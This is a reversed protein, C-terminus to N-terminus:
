FFPYKAELEMRKKVNPDDCDYTEILMMVKGDFIYECITALADIDNVVPLTYGFDQICHDHTFVYFDQNLNFSTSVTDYKQPNFGLKVFLDRVAQVDPNTHINAYITPTSFHFTAAVFDNKKTYYDISDKIAEVLEDHPWRENEDLM